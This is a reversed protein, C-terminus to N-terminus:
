AGTTPTSPPAGQADLFKKFFPFLEDLQNIRVTHELMKRLMPITLHEDVFEPTLFAHEDGPFLIRILRPTADMMTNMVASFSKPEGKENTVSSLSEEIGRAFERLRKNTLPRLALTQGAITFKIVSAEPDFVSVNSDSM